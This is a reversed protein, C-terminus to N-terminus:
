PMWMTIMQVTDVWEGNVGMEWHFHPGSTRGTDGVMGIIQGKTIEQGNTVHVQSLHAYGSMVGWGHDIMVYNGRIDLTGAFAVVGPGSAMVPIGLTARIDWGTHRTNHTANFTRFAGFPSTLRALIPMQFGDSDWYRQPTFRLLLGELRALESREVQPELLFVRETPLEVQQRIFGGLLLEVQTNIATSTGDDYTVNVDLDYRRPTQEMSVSVLGYFGDGAVPFFEITQDIFRARVGVVQKGPVNPDITQVQMLGVRGQELTAFYVDLVANDQRLRTTPAPRPERTPIESTGTDPQNPDDGFDDQALVASVAFVGLSLLIVLYLVRKVRM